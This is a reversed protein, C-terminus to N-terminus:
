TTLFSGYIKEKMFSLFGVLGNPYDKQVAEKKAYMNPLMFVRTSLNEEGSYKYKDLMDNITERISEGHQNILAENQRMFQKVRDDRTLLPANFVLYAIVDFSDSDELNDISKILEINVKSEELQRIFDEKLKQDLWIKRLEDTSHVRNLINEKSYKRYEAYSLKRGDFEIEIEEDINVEVGKVKIKKPVVAGM